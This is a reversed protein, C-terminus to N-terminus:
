DCPNYCLTTATCLRASRACQVTTTRRTSILFISIRFKFILHEAVDPVEGQMQIKKGIWNYNLGSRRRVREVGLGDRHGQTDDGKADAYGFCMM